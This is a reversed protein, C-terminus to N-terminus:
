FIFFGRLYELYKNIVDVNVNASYDDSNDSIKNDSNGDSNIYIFHM